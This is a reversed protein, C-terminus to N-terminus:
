GRSYRPESARAAADCADIGAPRQHFVVWDETARARTAGDTAPAAPRRFRNGREAALRARGARAAGDPRADMWPLPRRSLRRVQSRRGRLGAGSGGRRARAVRVHPRHPHERSARRPQGAPVRPRPRLADRRRSDRGRLQPVCRRRRRSARLRAVHRHSRARRAAVRWPICAANASRRRRRGGRRRRGLAVASRNRSREAATRRRVSGIRCGAEVAAHISPADSRRDTARAGERRRLHGPQVARTRRSSPLDRRSTATSHSTRTSSRRM